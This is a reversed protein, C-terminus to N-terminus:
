CLIEMMAVVEAELGVLYEALYEGAHFYHKSGRLCNHRSYSNVFATSSMPTPQMSLYPYSNSAMVADRMLWDVMHSALPSPWVLMSSIFLPLDGGM